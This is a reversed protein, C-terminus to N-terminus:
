PSSPMQDALREALVYGRPTTPEIGATEAMVGELSILGAHVERHCNSCLVVCKRIEEKVRTLSYNESIMRSVERLKTKPDLHHFDLARDCRKYGCVCCGKFLLFRASLLKKKRRFRRNNANIRNKNKQHHKYYSRRQCSLNDEHNRYTPVAM